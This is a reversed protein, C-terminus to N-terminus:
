NGKYGWVVPCDYNNWSSNWGSLQSSAECYITLNSCDDFAYHGISTVSNPIVISTLKRCSLFAFSGISTVSKSIAVSTLSTCRSFAMNGITSVKNSIEVSKLNACGSFAKIDIITVNEPITVSILEKNNAFASSGIIKCKNDILELDGKEMAKALYLYPNNMNGLYKLNDQTTYILSDCGVFADSDISIITDPLEINKIYSHYSFAGQTIRQVPKGNYKDAIVVNEDTGKYAVVEAYTGDSSICYVLGETCNDKKCGTFTCVSTFLTFVMLIILLRKM